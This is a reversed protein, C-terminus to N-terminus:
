ARPQGTSYTWAQAVSFTPPMASLIGGGTGQVFLGPGLAYPVVELRKGAELDTLGSLHGFRAVGGRERRPTFVFVSTEQLRNISRTFQIGWTQVAESSFRLQSFPVRIEV